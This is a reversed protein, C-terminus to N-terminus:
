LEKIENRKMISYLIDHLMVLQVTLAGNECGHEKSVEFALRVAAVAELILNNVVDGAQQGDHHKALGKICSEIYDEDIRM